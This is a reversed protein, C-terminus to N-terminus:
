RKSVIVRAPRLLRGNLTYGRRMEEVVHDPEHDEDESIGVAEHRDPDFPEGVTDFSAVGQSELLRQMQRYIAVFGAAVGRCPGEMDAAASVALEFNDVIDILGLVLDRTGADALMQRDRETRKRFNDFEALTRLYLDRYGEDTATLVQDEREVRVGEVM